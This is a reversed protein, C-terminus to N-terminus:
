RRPLTWLYTSTNADKGSAALTRGDASITPPTLSHFAGRRNAFTRGPVGAPWDVVDLTAADWLFVTGYSNGTGVLSRGDPTFAVGSVEETAEGVYVEKLMRLTPAELTVIRYTAPYAIRLGDPSFALTGSVRAEEAVGLQKGTRVDWLRVSSTGLGVHDATALWKGDPSFVLEVISQEHGAEWETQLEFTESDFIRVMTRGGDGGATAIRSGFPGAAVATIFSDGPRLAARKPKRGAVDGGEVVGARKGAGAGAEGGVLLTRGDPTFAIDHTDAMGTRLPAGDPSGKATDFFRLESVDSTVTVLLSERPSFAVEELWGSDGGAFTVEPAVIREGPEPEPDTCGAALLALVSV